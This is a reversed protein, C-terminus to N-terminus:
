KFNNLVSITVPINLLFNKSKPFSVIATVDHPIAENVVLNEFIFKNPCESCVDNVCLLELIKSDISGFFDKSDSTFKNFSLLEGKAM